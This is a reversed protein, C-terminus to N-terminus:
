DFLGREPMVPDILGADQDRVANVRRSVRWASIAPCAPSGFPSALSLPEATKGTAWDQACEGPVVCPVRHHVARTRECPAEATCVVVWPEGGQEGWLGALLCVAGGEFAFYWPLREGTGAKEWEYYGSVPVLCRRARVASAFMPSSAATESRANIVPKGSPLTAGWRVWAIEGADAGDSRIVPVTMGPAVNYLPADDQEPEPWFPDAVDAVGRWSFAKVYRGCM